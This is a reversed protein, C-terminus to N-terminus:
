AAFNRAAVVGPPRRLVRVPLGNALTSEAAPLLPEPSQDVILIEGAVPRQRGLDELTMQLPEPRLYSPIIVSVGLPM